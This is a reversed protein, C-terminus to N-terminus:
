SAECKSQNTAVMATAVKASPRSSTKMTSAPKNQKPNNPYSILHKANPDYKDDNSDIDGIIDFCLESLDKEAFLLQKGHPTGNKQCLCPVM